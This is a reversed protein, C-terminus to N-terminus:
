KQRNAKLRETATFKILDLNNCFFLQEIDNLVRKIIGHIMYTNYKRSHNMYRWYIWHFLIQKIGFMGDLLIISAVRIDLTQNYNNDLLEGDVDKKSKIYIKRIKNLTSRCIRHVKVKKNFLQITDGLSYEISEGMSYDLKQMLDDYNYEQGMITIKGDKSKIM